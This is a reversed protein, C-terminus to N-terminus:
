AVGKAGGDSIFGAQISRIGLGSVVEKVVEESRCNVVIVGQSLFNRFEWFCLTECNEKVLTSM